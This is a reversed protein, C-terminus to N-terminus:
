DSTGIQAKKFYKPQSPCTSSIVMIGRRKNSGGNLCKDLNFLKQIPTEPMKSESTTIASADSELFGRDKGWKHGEEQPRPDFM